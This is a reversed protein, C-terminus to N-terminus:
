FLYVDLCFYDRFDRVIVDEVRFQVVRRQDELMQQSTTVGINGYLHARHKRKINENKTGGGTEKDTVNNNYNSSEKFDATDNVSGSGNVNDSNTGVTKDSGGGNVISKDHTVLAGGNFGTVQNDTTDNHTNTVTNNVSVNRHEENESRSGRKSDGSRNQNGTEGRTMDRHRSDSGTVNEDDDYEEYRDYNHIPNYDYVMTKM